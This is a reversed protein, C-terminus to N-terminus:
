LEHIESEGFQEIAWERVADETSDDYPVGLSDLCNPVNNEIEYINVDKEEYNNIDINVTYYLKKM